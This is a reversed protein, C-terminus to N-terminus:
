ELQLEKYAQKSNLHFLCTQTKITNPRLPNSKYYVSINFLSETLNHEIEAINRSQLIITMDDTSIFSKTSPGTLQDNTYVTNLVCSNVAKM